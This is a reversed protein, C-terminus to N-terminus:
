KNKFYDTNKKIKPLDFIFLDENAKRIKEISFFYINEEDESFIFNTKKLVKTKETKPAEELKAGINIMYLSVIYYLVNVGSLHIYGINSYAEKSLISINLSEIKDIKPLNAIKNKEGETIFPINGNVIEVKTKDFATKLNNNINM